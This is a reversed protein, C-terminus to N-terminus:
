EELAWGIQAAAETFHTFSWGEGSVRGPARWREWIEATSSLQM